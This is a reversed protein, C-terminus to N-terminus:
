SPLKAAIKEVLPGVGRAAEMEAPQFKIGFASEIQVILAAHKFSDWGEVDEATMSPKLVMSEDDFVDQFLPTLKTYIESQQMPMYPPFSWELRKCVDDQV